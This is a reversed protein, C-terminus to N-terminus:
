HKIAAKKQVYWRVDTYGLNNTERNFSFEKKELRYKQHPQKSMYHNLDESIYPSHYM